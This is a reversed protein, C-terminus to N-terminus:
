FRTNKQNLSTFDEIRFNANKPIEVTFLQIKTSYYNEKLQRFSFKKLGLINKLELIQIIKAAKQIAQEASRLNFVEKIKDIFIKLLMNRYFESGKGKKQELNTRPILTVVGTKENTTEKLDYFDPNIALFEYERNLKEKFITLTELYELLTPNKKNTLNILIDLDQLLRQHKDQIANFSSHRNLNFLYLSEISRILECFREPERIPPLLHEIQKRQEMSVNQYFNSALLEPRNSEFKNEISKSKM